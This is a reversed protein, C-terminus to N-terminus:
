TLFVQEKQFAHELYADKIDNFRGRPIPLEAHSSMVLTKPTITQIHELNVLYSRHIRLFNRHEALSECLSDMSGAAELVTGDTKHLLLSRRIAECYELKDLEVRTIGTKCRLILSVSSERSCAAIVSDMLRFFSEPWIPKLQYFYAGVTYSQVAFEASSTLFIIKVNSDYQRIERAAEIGNEGPMLVDLLLIDFRAGKEISALLEFPSQFATPAIDANHEARYSGLLEHLEDLVSLDDDCFGIQIM